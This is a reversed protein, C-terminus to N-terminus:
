LYINERIHTLRAEGMDGMNGFGIADVKKKMSSARWDCYRVTLQCGQPTWALLIQQCWRKAHLESPHQHEIIDPCLTMITGWQVVYNSTIVEPCWMSESVQLFLTTEKLKFCPCDSLLWYPKLSCPGPNDYINTFAHRLKIQDKKNYNLETEPYCITINWGITHSTIIIILQM